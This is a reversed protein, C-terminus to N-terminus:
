CSSPAGRSYLYCYEAGYKWKPFVVLQLQVGHAAASSYMARINSWYNPTDGLPLIMMIGQYKGVASVAAFSADIASQFNTFNWQEWFRNDQACAEPNPQCALPAYTRWDPTIQPNPLTFVNWATQPGATASAAVCLFM